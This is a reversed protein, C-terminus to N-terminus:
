LFYRNYLYDYIQNQVVSNDAITRLLVGKVEINAPLNGIAQSGLTFGNIVKIGLDGSWLDTKNIQFLSNAGNFLVKVIGFTNLPLNYNIPSTLTAHALLGNPVGWQTLSASTQFFGDFIRNPGAWTVNRFIIYVFFPQSFAQQVTKMYDSTGNFLLGTGHSWNPQKTPDAQLLPSGSGLKDSWASVNNLADKTLTGTDISDYFAFTNGDYIIPASFYGSPDSLFPLNVSLYTYQYKLWLSHGSLPHKEGSRNFVPKARTYDNWVKRDQDSLSRWGAQMTKNYGRIISQAQTRSKTPTPKNRWIHGSHCPQITSGGLSGRGGTVVSGFKIVAM